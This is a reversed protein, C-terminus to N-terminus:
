FNPTVRYGAARILEVLGEDGPLHLAGVAIFANGSALLAQAREAMRHNRKVILDKEVLAMLERDGPSLSETRTVFPMYAAVNQAAYLAMLTEFHDASRKGLKAVAMLYKVQGDMPMGALVSVQEEITELGTLPINRQGAIRAIKTDLVEIQAAKRETECLPISLMGAVVWPQYGFLAAGAGPPLNPNDRITPEDADPILDWLTQGPPLVLLRAHKLIATAMKQTDGLEALELAVASAGELAQTMAPTLSTVRPDTVHATGLLFSPEVGDREITWFLAGGNPIAGAEAMVADYTAPEKIKLEALLDTGGCVPPEAHVMTALAFVAFLAAPLRIM